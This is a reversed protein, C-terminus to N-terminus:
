PEANQQILENFKAEVDLADRGRFVEKGTDLIRFVTFCNVELSYWRGDGMDRLTYSQWKTKMWELMQVIDVEASCDLSPSAKVGSQEIEESM